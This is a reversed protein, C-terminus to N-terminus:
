VCIHTHKYEEQLLNVINYSGSQRWHTVSAKAQSKTNCVIGTFPENQILVEGAYLDIEVGRIKPFM